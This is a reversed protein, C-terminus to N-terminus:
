AIFGNGLSAATIDAAAIGVLVAIDNVTVGEVEALGGGNVDDLAVSSIHANVGDSWIVLIVDDDAFNSDQLHAVLEADVADTDAFAGSLRLISTAVDMTYDAGSTVDDIVVATQTLGGVPDIDDGNGDVLNTGDIAELISNDLVFVDNAVDFSTITSAEATTVTITEDGGALTIDATGAVVTITADGGSMNVVDDGGTLNLVATGSGVNITDGNGSTTVTSKGAGLTITAGGATTEIDIILGNAAAASADISTITLNASDATFSVVGSSATTIDVLDLTTAGAPTIDSVTITSSTGTANLVLSTTADKGAATTGAIVMDTIVIDAADTATATLTGLHDVDLLALTIDSAEDTTATVTVDVDADSLVGTGVTLAGKTSTVEISTAAEALVEDEVNLAGNTANLSVSTAKSVDLNGAVNSIDFAGGATTVTVSTAAAASIGAAGDVDLDKVTSVSLSSAKDNTISTVTYAKGATSVTFDGANNAVTIAAYNADGVANSLSLTHAASAGAEYTINAIEDDAAEALQVTAIAAPIHTVTNTEDGTLQLTDAGTILDARLSGNATDADVAITEVNSITPRLIAAAAISFSLTDDGDGGDIDDAATITAGGVITDDGTGSDLSIDAGGLNITLDGTAASADISKITLATGSGLEADADGTVTLSTHTSSIDAIDIDIAKSVDYGQVLNLTLAEIGAGTSDIDTVVFADTKDQNKINLTLADAKGTADALSIDVLAIDTQGAVGDDAATVTIAEDTVKTATFKHADAGSIVTVTDFSVISADFTDAGGTTATVSQVNTIDAKAPILAGGAGTVTISNAGAGGDISDNADLNTSMKFVDNASGGTATLDVGGDTLTLVGSGTSTIVSDAVTATMTVAGAGSINVAPAVDVALTLKGDTSVNVTEGSTGDVDIANSGDTPANTATLNITEIGDLDIEADSSRNVTVNVTDSDGAAVGAEYNVDLIATTSNNSIVYDTSIDTVDTLTLTSGLRTATFTDVDSVNGMILEVGGAGSVRTVISEVGTSTFLAGDDNANTVTLKM